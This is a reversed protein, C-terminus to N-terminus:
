KPAPAPPTQPARLATMADNYADRLEALADTAGASFATWSEAGREGLKALREQLEREKAAIKELLEKARQKAEAATTGADDRIAEIRQELSARMESLKNAVSEQFEERREELYAATAELAQDTEAKVQSLDVDDGGTGPLSATAPNAPSQVAPAKAGSGERSAPESSSSGPECGPASLLACCIGAAGLM